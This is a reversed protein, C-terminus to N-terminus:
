TSEPAPHQLYQAPRRAAPPTADPRRLYLPTLPGPVVGTLLPQLARLVLGRPLGSPVPWKELAFGSLLDAGAGTVAAPRLGREALMDPIRAPALVVPGYLRRGTGSYASLYVERRRADTVVLFDTGPRGAATATGDHSPVGHVPIELADGLAAATAIGVRLGTFPGPGLGVVIAQLDRLESGAAALAEGALPMLREAHAFPDTLSREALGDVLSQPTLASPDTQPGAAAIAEHLPIVSVVGATVTPTSTDLALM